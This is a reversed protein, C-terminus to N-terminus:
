VVNSVFFFSEDFKGVLLDKSFRVNKRFDVIRDDFIKFYMKSCFKIEKNYFYIIIKYFIM